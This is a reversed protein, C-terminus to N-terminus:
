IMKRTISLSIKYPLISLFKLFMKLKFPFSIEFKKDEFMEESIKKATYDASMLQPMEFDNKSTLRTKVFGHNIIKLKIGLSDLEPHISQALNLLATKPASYGGGKPLGFYTSLSLNWIWKGFGQNKFYPIIECMLKVVGLYNTENMKIFHEKNWNNIDMVEYTGANYFWIDLGRYVGWAEQVENKFNDKSVDLDLLYLNDQFKEQLKQLEENTTANRSSVILYHNENLLIKVLELGIGSSGGIIWIRNNAEM